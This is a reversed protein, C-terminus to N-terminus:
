LRYQWSKLEYANFSIGFKSINDNNRKCGHNLFSSFIGFSGKEPKIEQGIEPFELPQDCQNLYIIGSWISEHHNHFVTKEHPRIEIGWADKIYFEPFTYNKDLFKIIPEIAKKFNNNKAFYDWKTMLGKVNTEFNLNLDSNSHCVKKIEEIFYESDIDLTGKIFLYERAINKNIEKSIIM